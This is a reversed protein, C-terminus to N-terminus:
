DVPVVALTAAATDTGSGSDQLCDVELTDNNTVPIADQIELDAYGAVDDAVSRYLTGTSKDILECKVVDPSSPSATSNLEIAGNVYYNLAKAGGVATATVVASNTNTLSKQPMPDELNTTSFGGRELDMFPGYGCDLSGNGSPNLGFAVEGEPCITFMGADISLAAGKLQLGSGAGITYGGAPGQNGQPGQKGQPGPKSYQKILKIVQSKTLSSSKASAVSPMAAAVAVSATIAVVTAAQKGLRGLM